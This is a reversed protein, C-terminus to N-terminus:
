LNSLLLDLNSKCVIPLHITKLKSTKGHAIIVQNKKIKLLQAIFNILENNAKNDVAFATIAIKIRGNLPPLIQNIQAAVKVVIPFKICDITLSYYNNTILMLLDM